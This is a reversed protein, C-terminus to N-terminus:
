MQASLIKNARTAVIRVKAELQTLSYPKLIYGSVGAGKAEAVSTIDGRGTIMMFPVKADVSRIQRLLSMGDMGPMNWDCLVIDVEDFSSDLFRMGERGDSADFVQTIGMEILMNKLMIRAEYHDDIVLVKLNNLSEKATAM